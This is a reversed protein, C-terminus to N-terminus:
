RTIIVWTPVQQWSHTLQKDLNRYEPECSQVLEWFKSSHNMHRTHCLEHIMLYRVIDSNLFLASLNLSITGSASCSGWRTRQRRIQLRDYSFGHKMALGRLRLDFEQQAIKTLWALLMKAWQSSDRWDGRVLLQNSGLLKLRPPCPEHRYEIQVSQGISPLSLSSPPVMLQQRQKCENVKAAIWDLHRTVFQKILDSSAYQPAIVVVQGTPDVKISLRRARHSVRVQYGGDIPSIDLANEKRLLRSYFSM